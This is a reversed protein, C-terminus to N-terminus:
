KKAVLAIGWSYKKIVKPAFKEILSDVFITVNSIIKFLWIPKLIVEGFPTSFYGKYNVKVNKFGNKKFIEVLDEPKFFVQESSYTSDIKKRFNRIFNIFVNNSIPEFVLIVTNESTKEHLTNLFDNVNDVHHLVGIALVLDAEQFKDYEKIDVCEFFINHSNKHLERAKEIMGASHDLGIYKDFNIYKSLYNYPAAIGCGIEVVNKINNVDGLLKISSVVENERVLRTSITYDKLAYKSVIEDFLEKDRKAKNSM